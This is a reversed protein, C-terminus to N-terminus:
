YVTLEQIVNERVLESPHPREDRGMDEAVKKQIDLNGQSGEKKMLVLAIGKSVIGFMYSLLIQRCSAQMTTNIDRIQPPFFHNYKVQRRIIVQKQFFKDLPM